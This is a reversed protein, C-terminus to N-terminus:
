GQITHFLDKGQCSDHEKKRGAIPIDCRIFSSVAFGFAASHQFLYPKGTM